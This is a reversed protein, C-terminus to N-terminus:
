EHSTNGRAAARRRRYEELMPMEGYVTRSLVDRVYEATSGYGQVVALAALVEKMDEGIPVDLRATLKERHPLDTM